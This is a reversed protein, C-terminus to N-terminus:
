EIALTGGLSVWPGWGSGDWRRFWPKGGTAMSFVWVNTGAAAAEADSALTGAGFTWAAWAVGDYQRTWLQRAANIAALVVVDPGAALAPPTAVRGTLLKWPGWGAASRERSWPQGSGNVAVYLLTGAPTEAAAIGPLVTGGLSEWALWSDSASDWGRAWTQGSNGLGFLYVGPGFRAMSLSGALAGDIRFWPLWAGATFRRIWLQNGANRVTVIIDGDSDVAAAPDGAFTGGLNGLVWAGEDTRTVFGLGDSKNRFFIFDSTGSRVAEPRSAAGSGVLTWPGFEGSVTERSWLQGASNRGVLLMEDGIGLATLQHRGLPALVVQMAVPTATWGTSGDMATARITRAGASTFTHVVSTISGAVHQPASGDGWDITWDSIADTGPDTWGLTLAYPQSIVASSAGTVVLAPAVDNVTLSVTNAPWSAYSDTGQVEITHSAPGDAYVHEAQSAEAPVLTVPSGDGWDIIWGTIDPPPPTLTLQYPAGEDVQAPGSVSLSPPGLVEVQRTAVWPGDEDTVTVTITRIVGGTTYVHESSGAEAPLSEPSSGDGWEVNWGTVTEDGPDTFTVGLVYPHQERLSSPGDLTIVPAANTVVVNVAEAAFEDAGQFASAAVVVNAPGDAYVHTASSPNGTLTDTEGDGWDIQWSTVDDAGPDIASLILTYTDGEVVTGPGSASVTPAVDAVSVAHPDAAFSDPGQLVTVVINHVEPGDAYVHQASTATSPLVSPPSGDGWDVSWGTVPDNGPDTAGFSVTYASGEDVSGSGSVSITPSVDAVTVNISNSPWTDVGDTATASITWSAPGDAFIHTASAPDGTILDPGSGDGWDITWSTVFPAGSELSLTYTAGEDVTAPGDITLPPAVNYVNVTLANSAFAGDEDIATASVQLTAPASTYVHTVSAPNGTVNEPPGDGWSIQWSAVTDVGPDATALTLTYSAGTVVTSAGSITVSPAVNSVTIPKPAALHTGDEDTVAVQIVPTAPGDAYIHSAGTATAPLLSPAAGDGWDVSWSQVTETGPDTRSFTLAYNQGEAISSAGTVTIAPAVNLVSVIVPAAAPYDAGDDRVEASIARTVPGDAYVHTTSSPNGDVNTEQGDGWNIRWRQIDESGPYAASLNLTYTAGEDVSAAGSVTIVRPAVSFPTSDNGGGPAPTNVVITNEGAVLLDSAALRIRLESASVVTTARPVGDWSVVSDWNFGYGLLRMEQQPSGEVISAPVFSTIGPELAGAAQRPSFGPLRGSAGPSLAEALLRAPPLGTLLVQAGGSGDTFGSRAFWPPEIPIRFRDIERSWDWKVFIVTFYGSGVSRPDVKAQFTARFYWGPTLPSNNTGSRTQGSNTMAPEASPADVRLHPPDLATGAAFTAAGATIWPAAGASFAPNPILEPAADLGALTSAQRFSGGFFSFYSDSFGCNCEQNVRFGVVAHGRNQAPVSDFQPIVGEITYTAATGPGDAPAYRVEVPVSTLPGGAAAATVDATRSGGSSAGFSLTMDTRLSAYQSVISTMANPDTDPFLQNPYRHWSQFDVHQPSGGVQGEYQAAHALANAIWAGSSPDTHLGNYIIGFPILAAGTLQEVQLAREPWDSRFSWDVDLHLYALPVGTATEYAQAWAALEAPSAHDSEVDGFRVDPYEAHVAAVYNAVHAAIQAMSWNCQAPYPAATTPSASTYPEQMTLYDVTVGAADIRDLVELAIAVHDEVWGEGTVGCVPGATQWQLAPVEVAVQIGAAELFQVAEVVDAPPVKTVWEWYLQFVDVQGRAIDWQGVGNFLDQFDPHGFGVQVGPGTGQPYPAFWVEPSALQAM